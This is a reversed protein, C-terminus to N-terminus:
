FKPLINKIIEEKDAHEILEWRELILLKLAYIILFDLDFYHGFALEELFRWRELDLNKEVELPSPNRTINMATYGLSLESYEQPRLYKSLELHRRSARIKSLENRLSTDFEQWKRLTGATAPYKYEGNISANRIVEVEKEPIFRECSLVFDKFTLPVRGPFFLM